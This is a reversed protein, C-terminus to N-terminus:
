EKQDILRKELSKGQSQIRCLICEVTKLSMMLAVMLDMEKKTTTTTKKKPMRCECEISKFHTLLKLLCAAPAAALSIQTCLLLYFYCVYASERIREIILFGDHSLLKEMEIMMMMTMTM